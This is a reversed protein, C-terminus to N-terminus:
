RVLQVAATLGVKGSAIHPALELAASGPGNEVRANAHNAVAIADLISWVQIGAAAGMGLWFRSNLQNRATECLRTAGAGVCIEDDDRGATFAFIVSAALGSVMLVGKTRDGNYFQGAGPLFASLAGAMAPEFRAPHQAMSKEATSIELAPLIVPAESWRADLATRQQAGAGSDPLISAVALAAAGLVSRSVAM